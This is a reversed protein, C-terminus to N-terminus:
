KEKIEYLLDSTCSPEVIDIKCRLIPHCLYQQRGWLVGNPLILNFLEINNFIIKELNCMYKWNNKNKPINIIKNNSLNLYNLKRMNLVIKFVNNTIEEKTFKFDPFYKIYTRIKDYSALLAKDHNSFPHIMHHPCVHSHAQVCLLCSGTRM